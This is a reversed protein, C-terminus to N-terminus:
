KAPQAKWSEPMSRGDPLRTNSSGKAKEIQQQTLNRAKSLDAGSLDAEGLGAGSLDAGSLDARRLDAGDLTTQTLNAQVLRADTLYAGGMTAGHLVAGSLDAGTLQAGNFDAWSLDAGRLDARILSAETLNAGSLDAASLDARILRAQVLNAGRLDTEHLDLVPRQYEWQLNRRAITTLVTQVDTSPKVGSPGSAQINKVSPQTRPANGRVYAALVEIAPWHDNESENAIREMAYIGGSRVELNKRGSADAAGMQEVAKSFRETAQKERALAISKQAVRRDLVAAYFSAVLAMAGVILALTRRAENVRDFREKQGLGNLQGLQWHPVKWLVALVFAAGAGAAALMKWNAPGSQRQLGELSGWVVLVIVLVAAFGAGYYLARHWRSPPPPYLPEELIKWPDTM